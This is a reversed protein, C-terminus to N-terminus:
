LHVFPQSSCDRLPALAFGFAAVQLRVEDFSSASPELFHSVSVATPHATKAYDNAGCYM